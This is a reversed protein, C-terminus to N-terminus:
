LKKKAQFVRAIMEDNSLAMATNIGHANKLFLAACFIELRPHQRPIDIEIAGRVIGNTPQAKERIIQFVQALPTVVEPDAANVFGSYLGGGIEAKNSWIDREKQYDAGGHLRDFAPVRGKLHFYDGILHAYENLINLYDEGMGHCHGTDLGWRLSPIKIQDIATLYTRIQQATEGNSDYHNHFLVQIGERLSVAYEALEAYADVTRRISQDDSFAKGAPHLMVYKMDPFYEVLYNLNRQHMKVYASYDQGLNKGNLYTAIVKTEKPLGAITKTLLQKDCGNQTKQEPDLVGQPIEIETIGCALFNEAAHHIQKPGCHFLKSTTYNTSTIVEGTLQIKNM